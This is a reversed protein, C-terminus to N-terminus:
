LFGEAGAKAITERWRPLRATPDGAAHPGIGRWLGDRNFSFVPTLDTRQAAALIEPRLNDLLLPDADPTAFYALVMHPQAQVSPGAPSALAYVMRLQVAPVGLARLSFYKAIAFDECDGEGKRLLELPSAWHDAQGWVEADARFRIRQNFYTNVARLKGADDLALATDLLPQLAHPGTAPPHARLLGVGTALGVLVLLSWGAVLQRSIAAGAEPQARALSTASVVWLSHAPM